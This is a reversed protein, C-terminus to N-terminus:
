WNEFGRRQRYRQPSKAPSCLRWSNSRYNAKLYATQYSVLGYATSHSKNFGYGGFTVIQEFVQHATKENISKAKAGEMFLGRLKEIEEPIKKGMAKRVVDAQGPTFGAFDRSLRM